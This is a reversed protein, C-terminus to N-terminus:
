MQIHTMIEQNMVELFLQDSNSPVKGSILFTIVSADFGSFHFLNPTDASGEFATQPKGYYSSPIDWLIVKFNDVYEGSFGATLLRNKLVEFNTKNSSTSNFCGDSFCVIGTPFDVEDVGKHLMEIWHTAISQFNTGAVISSNDNCLQEVPTNGRWQKLITENSFEFYHNTFPGKVLYSFFLCLSKGISYASANTGNVKSTMSGSTDLVGILSNQNEGMGKQAKAVLEMFQANMTDIEYSKLHSYRMYTGTELPSFLEYLFGTYKATKQDGIWAQYKAELGQNKLFKGSVLQSLARGHITSFDIQNFLKKSILQQWQHATGSSKLKRYSRYNRYNDEQTKGGFLLSCIWKAIMNDAQSELTTCQNNSKIQPLYKKVLEGTNPNGLGSLIVKGLFDWDLKRSEWGNYVLDYSLMTFIDKWSGASIFLHLNKAFVDPHHVAIWIMRFIGEHKLGAGKQSAETKSGDFFTVVRTIMRVYLTFCLALFPNQEWLLYMDKSVQDFTRPSKYQSVKGFQDVFDSGTSTLKTAGNGLANTKFGKITSEKLFPNSPLNITTNVKTASTSKFLNTKKQTFM